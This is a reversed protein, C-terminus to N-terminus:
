EDAGADANGHDGHLFGARELVALDFRPIEVNCHLGCDLLPVGVDEGFDLHRHIFALVSCVQDQQVGAQVEHVQHRRVSAILVGEPRARIRPVVEVSQPISEPTCHREVM